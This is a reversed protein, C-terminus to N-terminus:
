AMAMGSTQIAIRLDEPRSAASLADRLGVLGERFLQFLSQDITQMGYYEGESIAQELSGDARAPDAILEIIRPTSMLVEVAPV